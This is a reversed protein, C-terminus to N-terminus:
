KSTAKVFGPNTNEIWYVNAFDVAAGLLAFPGSLLISQAGGAVSMQKINGPNFNENQRTKESGKSAGVAEGTERV